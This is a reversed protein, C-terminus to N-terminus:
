NFNEPLREILVNKYCAMPDHLWCLIQARLHNKTQIADKLSMKLDQAELGYGVSNFSGNQIHDYRMLLQTTENVTDCAAQYDYPLSLATYYFTSGGVCTVVLSGIMCAGFAWSCLASAETKKKHYVYLSIGVLVSFMVVVIIGVQVYDM